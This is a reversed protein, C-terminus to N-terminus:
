DPSCLDRGGEKDEVIVMFNKIDVHGSYGVNVLTMWLAILSRATRGRGGRFGGWVWGM